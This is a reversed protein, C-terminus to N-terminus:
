LLKNYVDFITQARELKKEVVETKEALVEPHRLLWSALKFHSLMEVEQPMTRFAAEAKKV